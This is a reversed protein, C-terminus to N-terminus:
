LSEMVTGFSVFGDGWKERATKQMAYSHDTIFAQYRDASSTLFQIVFVPGDEDDQELLRYVHYSDFLGTALIAPIHEELQWSLWPELIDWRVKNSINYVIM